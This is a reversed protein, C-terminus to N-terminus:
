RAPRVRLVEDDGVAADIQAKGTEYDLAEITWEIPEPPRSTTLPSAGARPM